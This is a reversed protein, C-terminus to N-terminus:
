FKYSASLTKIFTRRVGDTKVPGGLSGSVAFCYEDTVPVVVLSPRVQMLFQISKLLGVIVALPALMILGFGCVRLTAKFSSGELGQQLWQAVNPVKGRLTRRLRRM